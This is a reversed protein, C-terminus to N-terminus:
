QNNHKAKFIARLTIVIGVAYLPCMIYPFRVTIAGLLISLLFLPLANMNSGFLRERETRM